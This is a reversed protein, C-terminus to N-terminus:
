EIPKSYNTYGSIQSNPIVHLAGDDSRLYVCHLNIDEVIGRVGNVQIDDGMTISEELLLIIGGTFDQIVKQSAFGVAIGVIGALTLMSSIDVYLVYKLFLAIAIFGIATDFVGKAIKTLTKIKNVRKNKALFKNIFTMIIKSGFFIVIYALLLIFITKLVPVLIPYPIKDVFLMIESIAM